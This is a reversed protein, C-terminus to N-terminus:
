FEMQRLQRAGHHLPILVAAAGAALGLAVGLAVGRLALPSTVAGETAAAFIHWPGAMLATVLLLYALGVVLNLTGGFGAAIKSPDTERFNPMCAGLGVSLGSLGVALVAVTLVHLVVILAPMGLMLDSVVVLSEAIVLSGVASFAFKGWLLKERELPLLGLVWFKNGELSLMPYIFRGTYTCLLLAVATVNLLSVLNQFTWRIDSVLLRRINLFYLAMLGCFILVQAWQAPDRRFTRFDKVILLRTQPGALFLSRELLRDLWHGGWNKRLDGGTSVRNFGRRYLKKALWATLLYLFLGNSWVLGLYYLTRDTEGRAASLVGWGVWHTPLMPAKALEFRGFLRDVADRNLAEQQVATATSYGWWVAPIAVLLVLLVLMQKRRRPLYNVILLCAIAGLSGPILIFGLFFPPLLAYFSWPAKYVIGYAVLVPGGLLLFAWSSFALSGQFKFAFIQDDAAPSSLLFATERSAFLSSYLILGSSFILLAGLALFMLDFLTGVITGGLELRQTVMFRFGEWSIGFVFTCIVLSCMLITLPRMTSRGLMLRWSNRLLACRLQLFLLATAGPGAPKM